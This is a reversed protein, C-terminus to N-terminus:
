KRVGTDGSHLSASPSSVYLSLALQTAAYHQMIDATQCSCLFGTSNFPMHDNTICINTLTCTAGLVM